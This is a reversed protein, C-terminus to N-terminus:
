MMKELENWIANAYILHGTANPHWADSYLFRLKEDDTDFQALREKLLKNTDALAVGANKASIVMQVIYEDYTHVGDVIQQGWVPFPTHAIINNTFERMKGYAELLVKYYDEPTKQTLWDNITCGEFIVAWPQLEGVYRDFFTSNYRDVSCSGVGCNVVAYEGSYLEIRQILASNEASITLIHECDEAFLNIHKIAANNSDSESYLSLTKQEVGDISVAVNALTSTGKLFIRCFGFKNSISIPKDRTVRGFNGDHEACLRTLSKNYYEVAASGTSHAHVYNRILNVYTAFEFPLQRLDAAVLGPKHAVEAGAGQGWTHSDGIVAIIKM